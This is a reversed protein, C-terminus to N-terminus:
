SRTIYCCVYIKPIPDVAGVCSKKIPIARRVFVGYVSKTLHLLRTQVAKAVSSVNGFRAFVLVCTFANQVKPIPNNWNNLTNAFLFVGERHPKYRWQLKGGYKRSRQPFPYESITRSPLTLGRCLDSECFNASFFWFYYAKSQVDFFNAFIM